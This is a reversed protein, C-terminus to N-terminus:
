TSFVWIFNLNCNPHTVVFHFDIGFQEKATVSEAFSGICNHFGNAFAKNPAVSISQM